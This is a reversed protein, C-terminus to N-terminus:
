QIRRKFCKLFDSLRFLSKMWVGVVLLIFIEMKGYTGFKCTLCEEGSTVLFIQKRGSTIYRM